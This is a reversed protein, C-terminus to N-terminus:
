KTRVMLMPKPNNLQTGPIEGGRKLEGLIAQRNLKPLQPVWYAEPIREEAIVILSPSGARTSATFDPQELKALGIETMADLALQRKKNARLDLRSLREKMDDLRIRLGAELAEDVLASRVVAAIMEHVDTIGELTDRITEDDANPFRELLKERLLQYHQSETRVSPFNRMPVIYM